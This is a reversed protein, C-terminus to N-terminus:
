FCGPCRSLPCQHADWRHSLSASLIQSVVNPAGGTPLFVFDDEGISVNYEPNRARITFCPPITELARNVDKETFFVRTGDTRFGHKRFIELAEAAIFRVGTHMLIDMSTNHILNLEDPTFVQMQMENNM